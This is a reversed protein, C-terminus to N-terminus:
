GVNIFIRFYLVDKQNGFITVIFTVPFWPEQHSVTPWRRVVTSGTQLAHILLSIPLGRRCILIIIWEYIKHTKFAPM